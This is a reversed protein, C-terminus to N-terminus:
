SQGKENMEEDVESLVGAAHWRSAIKDRMSMTLVATRRGKKRKEKPTFAVVELVPTALKSIQQIPSAALARLRSVNRDSIHTQGMFGFVEEEAEIVRRQEKPM